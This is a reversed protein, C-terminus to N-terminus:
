RGSGVRAVPAMLRPRRLALLQEEQETETHVEATLGAPATGGSAALAQAAYVEECRGAAGMDENGELTGFAAAGLHSETDSQQQHQLLLLTRLGAVAVGPGSSARDGSGAGGGSGSGHVLQRDARADVRGDAGGDFHQTKRFCGAVGGADRDVDGGCWRETVVGLEICGPRVAVERLRGLSMGRVGPVGGGTVRKIEADLLQEFNPVLQDPRADPIKVALTHYRMSSRYPPLRLSGQLLQQQQHVMLQQDQRHSQSQLLLDEQHNLYPLQSPGPEPAAAHPDERTEALPHREVRVRPVPEVPPVRAHQPLWPSAAECMRALGGAAELEGGGQEQELEGQQRLGYGEDAGLEPGGSQDHVSGPSGLAERAVGWVAEPSSHSNPWLPFSFGPDGNGGSSSGGGGARRHRHDDRAAATATALPGGRLERDLLGDALTLTLTNLSLSRRGQHEGCYGRGDRPSLAARSAALQQQKQEQAHHQKDLRVQGQEWEKREHGGRQDQQAGRDGTAGGCEAGGETQAAGQRASGVVAASGQEAQSAATAQAAHGPRAEVLNRTGVGEGGVCSTACAM